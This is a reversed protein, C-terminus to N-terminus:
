RTARVRRAVILLAGGALLLLWAGAMLPGTQSGTVALTDGVAPADAVVVPAAAVPAAPAVPNVVPVAVPTEVPVALTVSLTAWRGTTGGTAIVTHTGVPAGAPITAMLRAVGNADAVATGLFMPESHLYFAVTEGPQFGKAVLEMQQAPATAAKPTDLVTGVTPTSGERVPEGAITVTVTTSAAQTIETAPVELVLTHTGVSLVPLTVVFGGDHGVQGQALVSGGERVTWSHPLFRGAVTASFSTTSAVLGNVANPATVMPKVGLVTLTGTGSASVYASNKHAAISVRSYQIPDAIYSAKVRYVGVPVNTASVKAVGGDLAVTSLDLSPGGAKPTLTVKVDGTPVPGGQPGSVTVPVVATDGIVITTNTVSVTPTTVVTGGWGYRIGPQYDAHTGTVEVQIYGGLDAVTPTYSQKTGKQEGNVLWRYSFQTGTPWGSPRATVTTGLTVQDEVQGDIAVQGTPMEPLIVEGNGQTTNAISQGGNHPTYGDATVTWALEISKGIDATKPLYEWGHAVLVDGVWWDFSYQVNTPPNGSPLLYITTGVTATTMGDEDVILGTPEFSIDFTQEPDESESGGSGEDPVIEVPQSPQEDDDPIIVTDSDTSDNTDTDQPPTTTGGADGQEVPTQEVPQQEVPTQEVPQQQEPQQEAPSQDGTNPDAPQDVVQTSSTTDTSTAVDTDAMAAGAPVLMAAIVAAATLAIPRRTRGRKMDRM